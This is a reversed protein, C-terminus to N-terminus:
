PLPFEAIGPHAANAAAYPLAFAVAEALTAHRNQMAHMVCALLVDGSGTASVERVPAPRLCAPATHHGAFWVDDPGNTVVWAKVPWRALATRLRPALDRDDPGVGPLLGDFESRNIKILTCPQQAAWALPPGYSDVVLSGAAARRTLAGRLAAAEPSDWGPFSGCLAVVTVDSLTDFFHACEALATADPTRDPGLFTTEAQGPARVVLGTRTPVSTSVTRSAFAQRALWGACDAGSAGGTFCVATATTGLRTLMRAVNIGKGGVQFSEHLARQTRGPMWAAFDQTREALLNGTLTVFTPATM